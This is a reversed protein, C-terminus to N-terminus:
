GEIWRPDFLCEPPEIGTIKCLEKATEIGAKKGSIADPATERGSRNLGSKERLLVDVFWAKPTGPKVPAVGTTWAVVIEIPPCSLRYTSPM